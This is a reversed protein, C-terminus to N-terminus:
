PFLDVCRQCICRYEVVPLHEPTQPLPCIENGAIFLLAADMLAAANLM